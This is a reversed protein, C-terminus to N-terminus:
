NNGDRASSIIVGPELETAEEKTMANQDNNESYSLEDLITTLRIM